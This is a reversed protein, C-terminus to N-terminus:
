ILTNYFDDFKLFSLLNQWAITNFKLQIILAPGRTHDGVTIRIFDWNGCFAFSKRFLTFFTHILITM